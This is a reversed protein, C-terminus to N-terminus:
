EMDPDGLMQRQVSDQSIKEIERGFRDRMPALQGNGMLGYERKQGPYFPLKGIEQMDEYDIDSDLVKRGKKLSAELKNVLEKEIEDMQPQLLKGSRFIYPIESEQGYKDELIDKKFMIAGRFVDVVNEKDDILYGMTNIRHGDLDFEDDHKPNKTVDRDMNGKIWNMSFESYPFIKPPENYMLEHSRWIISGSKDIINGREDLLYGKINVRRGRM